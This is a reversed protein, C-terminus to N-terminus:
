KGLTSISAGVFRPIHAGSLAPIIMAEIEFSILNESPEFAGLRPLKMITPFGQHPSTVRFIRGQAGTHICEGLRFGDIESGPAPNETM